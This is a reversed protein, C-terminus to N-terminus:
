AAPQVRLEVVGADSRREGMLEATRNAVADAAALLVADASHVYRSTISRGKHGVLAAITPESYGLDAALSTLSHRLVHPTIGAPLGGLKIFRPWFKKFHLVTEAGGRSPPFVRDNGSHPMFKLVDCAAHALPRISRGTKTDALLVTRRPLDLDSWRLGLAEGSRWGTLALFRAVAIAAPWIGEAEGRRLAAGLAAYEDDNLRRERKRDAFREVGHVPNNPRMRRRVAYTFIAGLLGVARTAATRGGTVRALGRRKGTRTRSATRGEAVGHLFQDVDDRTIATVLLSGLLPKIHREIRGKDIALTSPKKPEKNRTLVRGAEADAFYADCLEAVTIAKRAARKAGAPDFGKVVEGLLERAKDRATEPTWPSGHRGITQWRQRGDATRYKVLYTVAESKQRRVAFGTVATDWIREGPGLARVERLGIRKRQSM